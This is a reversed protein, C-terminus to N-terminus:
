NCSKVLAIIILVLIGFAVQAVIVNVGEKAAAAAGVKIMGTVDEATQRVLEEAQRRANHIWRQLIDDSINYDEYEEVKRKQKERRQYEAQRKQQQFQKFNQYERNYRERAETDKLILYAENIEQMRRHADQSTNRDPHWKLTQKKFGSKVEVQSAAEDIELISYYDKFM